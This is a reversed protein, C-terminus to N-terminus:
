WRGPRRPLAARQRGESRAQEYVARAQDKKQIDGRIVRDGVHMVLEDVAADTSLPFVYLGEVWDDSPNSFQQSVHVRAMNGTVQVQFSSQVRMAEAPLADPSSKLLLSGSQVDDPQAAFVAPSALLFLVRFWHALRKRSPPQLVPM